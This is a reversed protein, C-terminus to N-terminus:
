DFPLMLLRLETFLDLDIRNKQLHLFLLNCFDLVSLIYLVLGLLDSIM